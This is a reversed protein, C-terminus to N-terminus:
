SSPTIEKHKGRNRRVPVCNNSMFSYEKASKTSVKQEEKERKMVEADPLVLGLWVSNGQATKNKLIAAKKAANPSALKVDFYKDAIPTGAVMIDDSAIQTYELVPTGKSIYITTCNKATVSKYKVLDRPIFTVSLSHHGTGLLAGPAPNYM